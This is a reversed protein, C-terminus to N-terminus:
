EEFAEVGSEMYRQKWLQEVTQRTKGKSCSNDIVVQAYKEKEEVPMQSSIRQMAQKRTMGDREMLRRIQTKEPIKVLWVEDVLGHTGTEILLPVVVVLAKAKDNGASKYLSIDEKIKDIVLPHVINNLVGRQGSDAFVIDGLVKRNLSQDSNLVKEGFAEKIRQWGTTGPEVVERAVVDADVVQAGIEKLIDTVLSKGSAISGTLGIVPM